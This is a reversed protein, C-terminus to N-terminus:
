SKDRNIQPEIAEPSPPNSVMEIPTITLGSDPAM